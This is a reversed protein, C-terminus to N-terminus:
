LTYPNPNLNGLLLPAWTQKFPKSPPRFGVGVGGGGGGGGGFFFFFLFLPVVYIRPM